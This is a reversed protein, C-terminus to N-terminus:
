NGPTLATVIDAVDPMEVGAKSAFQMAYRLHQRASEISGTGLSRRAEAIQVTTAAVYGRQTIDSTDAMGIQVKAAFKRASEIYHEMHFGRGDHAAARGRELEAQVANAYGVHRIMTSKPSPLGAKEAFKVAEGLQYDMQSAEGADASRRASAVAARVANTYGEIEIQRTDPATSQVKAALMQVRSLHQEMGSACGRRASKRMMELERGIAITYGTKTIDETPPMPIGAKQACQRAAALLTEMYDTKGTTAAERAKQVESKVGNLYAQAQMATTDPMAVNAEAAHKRADCLQDETCWPRGREATEQAAALSAHFKLTSPAIPRFIDPVDVLEATSNLIRKTESDLTQFQKAWDARAGACTRAAPTVLAVCRTNAAARFARCSQSVAALRTPPIFELVQVLVELPLDKVTLGRSVGDGDQHLSGVRGHLAPLRPISM